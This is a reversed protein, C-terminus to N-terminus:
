TTKGDGLSSITRAVLRLEKRMEEIFSERNKIMETLMTSTTADISGIAKGIVTDIAYNSTKLLTLLHNINKITEAQAQLSEKLVSNTNDITQVLHIYREESKIVMSQLQDMNEVTKGVLNTLYSQGYNDKGHGGRKFYNALTHELASLFQNSAQQTQLDFFGLILSGAIGFFSSSFATGMGMLPLRLGQKLTEFLVGVDTGKSPVITHIVYSVTSITKSLGWLTGLLGLFVLAGMLYRNVNLITDVRSEVETISGSKLENQSKLFWFSIQRKGDRQFWNFEQNMKHIAFFNWLIGLIMGGVIMGNLSANHFFFSKLNPYISYVGFILAAFFAICRVLVFHFM